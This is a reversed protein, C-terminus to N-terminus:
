IEKSRDYTHNISLRGEELEIGEELLTALVWGEVLRVLGTSEIQLYISARQALMLMSQRPSPALTPILALCLVICPLIDRLLVFGGGFIGLLLIDLQHSLQLLLKAELSLHTSYIGLTAM